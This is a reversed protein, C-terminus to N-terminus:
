RLLYIISSQLHVCYIIESTIKIKGDANLMIVRGYSYFYIQFAQSPTGAQLIEKIETLSPKGYVNTTTKTTLKVLTSQSQSENYRM